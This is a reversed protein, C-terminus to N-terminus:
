FTPSISIIFRSTTKSFAFESRFALGGGTVLHFGFGANTRFRNYTIDEYNNFVQGQDVFLAVDAFDWVPYRYEATLLLAGRDQIRRARYGRLDEPGGLFPHEFFPIGNDSLPEARELMARLGIRRTEPLIPVSLFHSWEVKYNIYHYKSDDLSHHWDVSTSIKNGDVVRSGTKEYYNFTWETGVNLLAISEYWEQPVSIAEDTYESGDINISRAVAKFKSKVRDNIKRRYEQIFEFRERAYRKQEVSEIKNSGFYSISPDNGYSIKTRSTGQFSFPEPVSYSFDVDNYDRSGFIVELKAKHGADWADRHFLFFGYAFKTEGGFEVLPYIGKEGREGAFLGPFNLEAYTIGTGLPKTAVWNFLTAPFALVSQTFTCTSEYPEFVFLSDNDSVNRTEVTSVSDKNAASTDQAVVWENGFIILVILLTIRIQQSWTFLPQFSCKSMFCLYEFHQSM